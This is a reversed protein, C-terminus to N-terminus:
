MFYEKKFKAELEPDQFATGEEYVTVDTRYTTDQKARLKRRILAAIIVIIILLGVAISSITISATGALNETQTGNTSLSSNMIAGPTQSKPTSVELNSDLNDSKATTTDLTNIKPTSTVKLLIIKITSSNIEGHVNSATCMIFMNNDEDSLTYNTEVEQSFGLQDTGIFYSIKPLPRGNSVCQAGLPSGAFKNSDYSVEARTPQYQIEIKSPLTKTVPPFDAQRVICTLDEGDFDKTVPLTLTSVLVGNTRTQSIKGGNKLDSSKEYRMGMVSWEITPVPMGNAATCKAVLDEKQPNIPFNSVSKVSVNAPTMAKLELDSLTGVEDECRIKTEKSPTFNPLRLTLSLIDAMPNANELIWGGQIKQPGENKLLLFIYGSDDWIRILKANKRECKFIVDEGNKIYRTRQAQTSIIICFIWLKWQM